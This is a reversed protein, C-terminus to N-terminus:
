YKHLAKKIVELFKLIFFAKLNNEEFNVKNNLVNYIMETLLNKLNSIIIM